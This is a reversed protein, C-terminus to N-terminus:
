LSNIIESIRFLPDYLSSRVPIYVDNNVAEWELFHSNIWASEYIYYYVFDYISDHVSYHISGNLTM